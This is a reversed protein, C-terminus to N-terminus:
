RFRIAAARRKEARHAELVEAVKATLHEAEVPKSMVADAGLLLAVKLFRAGFGGSMAIIGIDPQEKRLARITEAGEQEPMVLDSIVLDVGGARVASFAQKGDAAEVVEYGEDELVNRFFTRVGPEDDAVLVRAAHKRAEGDTAPLAAGPLANLAERVKIALTEPSFPKALYAGASDLMHRDRIARESYGSM